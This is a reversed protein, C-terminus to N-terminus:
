KWEIVSGKPAIAIYTNGRELELPSGDAHFFEMPSKDSACTWKIPVLKGGCAYYGDGGEGSVSYRSLAEDQSSPPAM